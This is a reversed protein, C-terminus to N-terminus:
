ETGEVVSVLTTDKGKTTLVTGKGKTTTKHTLTFAPRNVFGVVDLVGIADTISVPIDRATLIQDTVGLVEDIERFVDAVRTTPDTVGLTDTITVSITKATM